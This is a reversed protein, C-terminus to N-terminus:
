WDKEVVRRYRTVKAEYDFAMCDDCVGGLRNIDGILHVSGDVEVLVGPECHDSDRFDRWTGSFDNWDEM